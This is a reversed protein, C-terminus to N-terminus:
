KIYVTVVATDISMVKNNLHDYDYFYTSGTECLVAVKMKYIGASVGKAIKCYGAETVDLYDSGVIKKFILSRDIHCNDGSDAELVLETIEEDFSEKSPIIRTEDSTDVVKDYIKIKNEKKTKQGNKTGLHYNAYFEADQVDIDTGRYHLNVRVTKVAPAVLQGDDRRYANTFVNIFYIGYNINSYTQDLYDKLHFIIKDNEVDIFEEGLTDINGWADHTAITVTIENKIAGNSTYGIVIDEADEYDVYIESPCDLTLDSEALVNKQEAFITEENDWRTLWDLGEAMASDAKAFSFASLLFLLPIKIFIIKKIVRM